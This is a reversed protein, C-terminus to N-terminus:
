ALAPAMIPKACVQEYALEYHGKKPDVNYFQVWMKEEYLEVWVFGCQGGQQFRVPNRKADKISDTKAGAGTLIIEAPGLAPRPELWQMNHDHGTFLMDAQNAFCSELFHKYQRGDANKGTFLWRLGDDLNGANGHKGNSVYPVHSMAIKWHARSSHVWQQMLKRQPEGFNQWSYAPDPDDYFSTLPNSDVVFLEMFPQEPTGGFAQTYYRDPMNWKRSYRQESYHYEVQYDGRKNCSGGGLPTCANDHNGLCLFFPLDINQYPLEFKDLFGKDAVSTAGEEYLNDGTVLVFDAGQAAMVQEMAKAVYTQGAGGTGTDGIALFRLRREGGLMPQDGGPTTSSGSSGGGCASLAPVAAGSVLLNRLFRRRDMTM